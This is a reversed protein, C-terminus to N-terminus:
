FGPRNLRDTAIYDIMCISELTERACLADHLQKNIVTRSLRLHQLRPMHYHSFTFPSYHEIQAGVVGDQCEFDMRAARQFHDFFHSPLSHALRSLEGYGYLYFPFRISLNRLSLSLAALYRLFDHWDPHLWARIRKLIVNRLELHKVTGPPNRSIALYARKIM